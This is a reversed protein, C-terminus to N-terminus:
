ARHCVVNVLPSSCALLVDEAVCHCYGFHLSLGTGRTSNMTGQICTRQGCSICSGLTKQQHDRVHILNGAFQQWAHEVNRSTSQSSMCQRDETIVRVDHCAPLGAKCHQAFVANLFNHVQTRNSMECGDLATDREQIEEITETCGMFNLLNSDPIVLIESVHNVHVSDIFETGPRQIRFM